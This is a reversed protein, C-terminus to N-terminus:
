RYHMHIYLKKAGLTDAFIQEDNQHVVNSTVSLSNIWDVGFKSKIRSHININRHEFIPQKIMVKWHISTWWFEHLDFTTLASWIAFWRRMWESWDNILYYHNNHDIENMWDRKKEHWQSSLYLLTLTRIYVQKIAQSNDIQVCFSTCSNHNFQAM